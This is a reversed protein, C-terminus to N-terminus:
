THVKKHQQQQQQGDLLRGQLLIIIRIAQEM